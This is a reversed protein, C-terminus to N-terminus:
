SVRGNEGTTTSGTRQDQVTADRAPPRRDILPLAPAPEAAPQAPHPGKHISADSRMVEGTELVQKLRRLDGKVQPKTLLKALAISPAQGLVGLEFMVRVETMERGPARAFTVAGHHALRGGEVTRWAIQEGPHDAIIEADWTVTGAIPLKAVWRSRPKAGGLETVSELFDMFLPLNELKRWFAYVEAPPKNITVACIVPDVVKRQAHQVRRAAIADLAAAGAVAVAAVALRETRTRRSGAAWGIAAMDIADGALRAWLPLPRRPQLLVGLGALVERMGFARMVFSTRRSPELGIARALLEPAALETLGLGLSFVGLGRSLTSGDADPREVGPDRRTFAQLSQMICRRLLQCEM